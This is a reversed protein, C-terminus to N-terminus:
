TCFFLMVLVELKNIIHSQKHSQRNNNHVTILDTYVTRNKEYAPRRYSRKVLNKM